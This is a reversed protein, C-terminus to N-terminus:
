RSSSLALSRGEIHLGPALVDWVQESKHPVVENLAVNPPTPLIRLNGPPAVPVFKVENSFDSEFGLSNYATAAFFYATQPTLGKLAFTLVNGVDTSKTYIGTASGQYIKYGKLDTDPSADWALKAAFLPSTFLSVSLIMLLKKM